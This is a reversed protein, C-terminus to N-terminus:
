HLAHSAPDVAAVVDLLQRFHRKQDYSRVAHARAANGHASRVKDNRYAALARRFASTEPAPVLTGTTEHKVIESMAGVDTAIVPLGCAAAEICVNPSIDARTPLVFVDAAQYLKILEDSDAPIAAVQRLNHRPRLDTRTIVTWQWDTLEPDDILAEIIDIGKRHYESGIFLARLPKGDSAAQPRYRDIDLPSRLLVARDHPIGWEHQAASRFWESMCLITSRSIFERLRRTAFGRWPAAKRKASTYGLSSFQAPTCDGYVFTRRAFTLPVLACHNSTTLLFRDAGLAAARRVARRTQLLARLYAHPVNVAEAEVDCRVYPM